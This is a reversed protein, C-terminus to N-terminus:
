FTDSVDSSDADLELSIDLLIFSTAIAISSVAFDACVWASSACLSLLLICFNLIYPM